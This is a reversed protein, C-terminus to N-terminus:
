KEGRGFLFYAAAAGFALWIVPSTKKVEGFDEPLGKSINDLKKQLEIEAQQAKISMEDAAAEAKAAEIRAEESIDANMRAMAASYAAYAASADLAAKEAQSKRSQENLTKQIGNWLGRKAIYKQLKAVAKFYAENAPTPLYNASLKYLEKADAGQGITIQPIAAIREVGLMWEPTQKTKDLINEWDYWPATETSTVVPNRALISFYITAAREQDDLEPNSNKLLNNEYEFCWVPAVLEGLPSRIPTFRFVQERDYPGLIQQKLGSSITYGDLIALHAM